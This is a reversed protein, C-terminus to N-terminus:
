NALSLGELDRGHNLRRLPQAHHRQVVREDIEHIRPLHLRLFRVHLRVVLLSERVHQAIAIELHAEELGRRLRGCGSCRRTFGLREALRFYARALRSRSVRLTAEFLRKRSYKVAISIRLTAMM